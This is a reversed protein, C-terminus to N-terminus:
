SRTTEQILTAIHSKEVPKCSLVAENQVEMERRTAFCGVGEGDWWEM